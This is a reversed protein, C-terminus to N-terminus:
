VELIIHKAYVNNGLEEFFLDKVHKANGIATIKDVRDIENGDLYYVSTGKNQDRIELLRSISKTM